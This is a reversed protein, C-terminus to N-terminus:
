QLGAVPCPSAPAIGDIRAKVNTELELILAEYAAPLDEVAELEALGEETSRIVAERFESKTM